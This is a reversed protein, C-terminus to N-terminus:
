PNSTAPMALDARAPLYKDTYVESAKPAAVGFAAAVQNVTRSLRQQDVDSLGHQRVWPTAISWDISLKLRESEVADETLPERAKLAALAVAPEKESTVIGEAICRVMATLAAAHAEAFDPKVILASGYLDVGFQTYRLVTIDDARVGAGRVGMYSTFAAGSIADAGHRALLSERVEPSVNIWKMQNIQDDTFGNAQALLPFLRRSADGPPAAVARGILDKPQVIKNGKLTVISLPSGDYIVFFAIERSQPNRANYEVMANLDAFGVDYAGSGVKTITDGSGFGRDTTVELGAKRYCGQQEPVLFIAQPGQFAWDAVFRIQV